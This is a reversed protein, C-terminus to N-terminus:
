RAGGDLLRAFPAVNDPGFAILEVRRGTAPDDLTVRGDSWAAVRFPMDQAALGGGAEQQRRERVLGRLTARVFHGQGPEITAVPNGKAADYVAVAGNSRDEFRLSREAVLDAPAFPSETRVDGGVGIAIALSGAMVVGAGALAFRPFPRNPRTPPSAPM